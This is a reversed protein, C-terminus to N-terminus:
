KEMDGKMRGEVWGDMGGLEDFRLGWGLGGMGMEGLGLTLGSGLGRKLSM